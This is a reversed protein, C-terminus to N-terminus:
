FQSFILHYGNCWITKSICILLKNLTKNTNKLVIQHHERTRGFFTASLCYPIVYVKGFIM